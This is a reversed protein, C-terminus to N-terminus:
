SGVALWAKELRKMSVPVATKLEQAFLSVRLEELLFRLQTWGADVLPDFSGEDLCQRFREWARAAETRRQAEREPNEHRKELRVEIGHLYRPLHRLWSEPTRVLFGRFLLHRLQEEIDARTDETPVSVLLARIDSAKLLLDDLFRAKAEAADVLHARSQAVFDYFEEASRPLGEALLEQMASLMVEDDISEVEDGVEENSWAPAPLEAWRVRLTSDATSRAALQAQQPLALLGLRAIARRSSATARERNDLLRLDVSELRDVLSPFREIARGQLTVETTEPLDGFDWARVDRRDFASPTPLRDLQKQLQRGLSEQLAVVDRGEGLIEGEPDVVLFNMKMEPSLRDNSWLDEPMRLGVRRTLFESLAEELSGESGLQRQDLFADTTDALPLFTKRIRKPLARLMALVKDPLRGPVLWEFPEPCLEALVAIPV